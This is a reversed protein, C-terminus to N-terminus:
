GQSRILRERRLYDVVDEAIRASLESADREGALALRAKGKWAVMGLDRDLLDIDIELRSREEYHPPSTHAFFGHGFAFAVTHGPTEVWDVALDRVGVRVMADLGRERMKGLVETESYVRAEDLVELSSSAEIGRSALKAVLTQELTRRLGEDQANCFVLFREYDKNIFGSERAGSVNASVCSPVTGLVVLIFACCSWIRSM